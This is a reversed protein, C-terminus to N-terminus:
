NEEFNSHLFPWADLIYVVKPNHSVRHLPPLRSEKSLVLWARQRPRIEKLDRRAAVKFLVTLRRDECTAKRRCTCCLKLSLLLVPATLKRFISSGFDNVRGDVVVDRLQQHHYHLSENGILPTFLTPLVVVGSISPVVEVSDAQRRRKLLESAALREYTVASLSLSSHLM